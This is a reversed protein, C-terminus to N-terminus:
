ALEEDHVVAHIARVTMITANMAERGKNGKSGGAREKAQEFNECTIVGFGIPVGSEVIIASLGNAVANVIARDHRTEGRIVCGLAVVADLDEREALARCAAILEFAGPVELVVLDEDHGGAAVFAEEAAGRMSSTIESHYTSVALGIRLADAANAPVASQNTPKSM